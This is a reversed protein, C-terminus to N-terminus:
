EEPNEPSFINRAADIDNLSEPAEGGQQTLRMAKLDEYKNENEDIWGDGDSDLKALENFENGTIAGFLKEDDGAESDEKRDIALFESGPEVVDINDELDELDFEAEEPLMDSATGDFNLILPELLETSGAKIEFSDVEVRRHSMKLESEFEITEGDKTKIVGEASFTNGETEEGRDKLKEPNAVEVKQGTKKELLVELTQLGEEASAYEANPESKESKALGRPQSQDSASVKQASDGTLHVVDGDANELARDQVRVDGIDADSIRQRRRKLVAERANSLELTSDEIKM